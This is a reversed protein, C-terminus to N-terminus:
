QARTKGDVDLSLVERMAKTEYWFGPVAGCGLDFLSARSANDDLRSKDTREACGDVSCLNM